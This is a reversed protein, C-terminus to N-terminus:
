GSVLPADAYRSRWKKVEEDFTVKLQPCWPAYEHKDAVKRLKVRAGEYADRGHYFYERLAGDINVCSQQAPTLTTSTGVHLSKLISEEELAGVVCGLEKIYVSKRKLFDADRDNLFPTPTSSKDPMTFAMGHTSLYKAVYIHDFGRLKSSVSGKLDDGYTIISIHDSFSLHENSTHVCWDKFSCRILLCNVIGNIYVTLGNGSPNSCQLGLLDGNYAVYAYAIDTAIGRMVLRDEDTYDPFEHSFSILIDFAALVLQSAITLDYSSYDGALIREDGFKCIHDCMQQWEPGYTNVGVANESITPFLSLIRVLPLFYQRVLSQLAIPAAQFVRVKKLFKKPEDKLCSKFVCDSREGSLYMSRVKDIEELIEKTFIKPCAHEDDPQLWVLHKEKSGTLPFGIATNTKMADVFRKGDIGSTIEVLSLKRTDGRLEPVVGLISVIHSLYDQCAYALFKPEVGDTGEALKELTNKWPDMGKVNPPGYECPHQFVEEVSDSIDLKHVKSHFTSGGSVQGYYAYAGDIDNVPSKPHVEVSKLFQTGLQETRFNRSPLSVLVGDLKSLEKIATEAMPLTLPHAVGEVHGTLGGIHLGAIVNYKGGTIIPSGCLGIFTPFELEYKLGDYRCGACDLFEKQSVLKSSRMEGHWTKHVLHGRTDFVEEFPLYPLMDCWDGCRTIVVFALDSNPAIYSQSKSVWSSFTHSRKNNTKVIFTAKFEDSRAFSHAPIVALNGGLFLCDSGLTKGEISFKMFALNNFVKAQLQEVTITKPPTGCPIKKTISNEWNMEAALEDVVHAEKDREEIDQMSKPLLNGQPEIRVAKYLKLAAYVLGAVACSSIFFRTLDDRYEKIILPMSDSNEILSRKIRAVHLVYVFYLLSLSYCSLCCFVFLSCRTCGYGLVLMIYFQVCFMNFNPRKFVDWRENYAVFRVFRSDEILHRPLWNTWRLFQSKELRRLENMLTLTALGEVDRVLYLCWASFKSIYRQFFWRSVFQLVGFQPSYTQTFVSDRSFSGYPFEESSDSFFEDPDSRSYTLSDVPNTVSDPDDVFIARSRTIRRRRPRMPPSHIVRVRSRVPTAFMDEEEPVVRSSTEWISCLCFVLVCSLIIITGFFSFFLLITVSTFPAGSEVMVPMIEGSQEEVFADSEKCESIEECSCNSLMKRCVSCFPIEDANITSKVLQTQKADFDKAYDVVWDCLEFISLDKEIVDWRAGMPSHKPISLTFTWLDPLAPPTTGYKAVVAEDDLMHGHKVFEPKVKVEIFIGGRRIVSYPETSTAFASFHPKNATVILAAPEIAVRGKEHAEAKIAYEPMNNNIRVLDTSPVKAAFKPNTNAFDDMVAGTTAPGYNSMFKDDPNITVINEFKFAIGLALHIVKMVIMCVSSKGVGSEGWLTFTVPAKRMNGKSRLAQFEGELKVMQSLKGLLISRTTSKESLSNIMIQLDKIVQAIEDRVGFVDLEAVLKLNGSDYWQLYNSCKAVRKILDTTEDAGEFLPLVSKETFCRYGGEVFYLCTDIVADVLDLATSQRPMSEACFLRVGGLSIEYDSARGMGLAVCLGCLQSIKSFVPSKVILKWDSAYGKLEELWEGGQPEIGFLMSKVISMMSQTMSGPYISSIYSAFILLIQDFSNARCVSCVLLLLQEICKLASTDLGSYIVSLDNLSSVIRDASELSTSVMGDFSPLFDGQLPYQPPNVFDVSCNNTGTLTEIEHAVTM